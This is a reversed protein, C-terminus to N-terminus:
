RCIGTTDTIGPPAGGYGPLGPTFCRCLGQPLGEDAAAM